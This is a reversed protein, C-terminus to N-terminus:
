EKKNSTRKKSCKNIYDLLEWTKWSEPTERDRWTWIVYSVSWAMYFHFACLKQRNQKGLIRFIVSVKKPHNEMVEQRSNRKRVWNNIGIVIAVERCQQGVQSKLSGTGLCTSLFDLTGSSSFPTQPEQPPSLCRSNELLLFPCVNKEKLQHNCLLVVWTLSQKLTRYCCHIRSSSLNEKFFRRVLGTIIIIKKWGVLLWLKILYFCYLNWVWSCNSKQFM